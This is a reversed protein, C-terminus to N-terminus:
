QEIRVSKIPTKCKKKMAALGGGRLWQDFEWAAASDSVVVTLVGDSGIKKISARDVFEHPAIERWVDDLLGTTKHHKSFNKYLETIDQHLSLDPAVKARFRRLKELELLVPSRRQVRIGRNFLPRLVAATKWVARNV